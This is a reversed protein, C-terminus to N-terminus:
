RRPVEYVEHNPDWWLVCMMAEYEICVLRSPGNVHWAFIQDIDDRRLQRLRQRASDSLREVPVISRYDLVGTNYDLEEFSPLKSLIEALEEATGPRRSAIPNGTGTEDVLGDTPGLSLIGARDFFQLFQNGAAPGIVPRAILAADGITM